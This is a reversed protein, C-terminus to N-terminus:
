PRDTEPISEGGPVCLFVCLSVSVCMCIGMCVHETVYVCVIHIM